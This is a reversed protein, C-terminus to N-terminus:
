KKPKRALDKRKEKFKKIQLQLDDKVETIATRLDVHDSEARLLEGGITLNAEARFIFGNKHRRSPKGIEVKAAVTDGKIFKDLSGIKGQIFVELPKDLAINKTYIDIKM